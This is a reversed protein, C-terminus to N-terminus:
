ESLIENFNEVVARPSDLSGDLRVVSRTVFESKVQYNTCMRNFIGEGFYLSSPAEKLTQGFAYVVFRPEDAKLLSLIQQPVRELVEDRPWVPLRRPLTGTSAPTAPPSAFTLEPTALIRGLSDFYPAHVGYLINTEQARTRNIGDVIKQLTSLNTASPEFLNSSVQELFLEDLAGTDDTPVLVSVGSLVAAWAALNDQNASLLGRQATDTPATTFLDALTWDNTPHTGQSGAWRYWSTQTTTNTDAIDAKLYVTQWPTGRHVRGIWGVNPFKNTPFAWDDSREILPDKVRIDRALVDASENPNGGWPRYRQNLLGLNSNTLTIQPPIAFRVANTRNPDNPPNFPDLLDGLTYHVLPDNAQWTIEQYVKRTPSYGAQIALKGAIEQALRDRERQSTYTLPTLGCFLRLRDISREKDRGEASVASWSRWQQASTTINGLSIDIQNQV